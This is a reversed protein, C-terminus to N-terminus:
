TCSNAACLQFAWSTETSTRNPFLKKEGIVKLQVATGIAIVEHITNERFDYITTMKQFKSSWRIRSSTPTTSTKLNLNSIVLTRLRESRSQLIAHSLNAHTTINPSRCNSSCVLQEEEISKACVHHYTFEGDDNEPPYKPIKKMKRKTKQLINLKKFLNVM